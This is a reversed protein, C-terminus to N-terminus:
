SNCNWCHVAGEEEPMARWLDTTRLEREDLGGSSFTKWKLDRTLYAPRVIQFVGADDTYQLCLVELVPPRDEVVSRWIVRRQHYWERRWAFEVYELFEPIRDDRYFPDRETGAIESALKGDLDYLANFYIQGLRQGSQKKLNEVLQASVRKMFRTLM